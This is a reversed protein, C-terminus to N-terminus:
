QPPLADYNAQIKATYAALDQAPDKLFDQLLAQMGQAGAFDSRTDRDLYQAVGGSAGIIEAMKIQQPTFASTDTVKAAPIQSQDKGLFALQAEATGFCALM